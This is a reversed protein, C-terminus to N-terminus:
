ASKLLARAGLEDIALANLLGGKIAALVAATRDSGVVVGVRRAIKKLNALELSIVRDRFPTACEEGTESYFRGLVEGVASATRLIEVDKPGLVGRDVFVSNELTGVGVLVLDAKSLRRMVHQVQELNMLRSCTEADPLIAPTNLRVFTGRWRRALALGFEVADYPGPSADITGMAQVFEIPGSNPPTKLHEVLAQMTRGGAIAVTKASQIWDLIPTAAVHGVMRRLDIPQMGPISRIVIAEIGLERKLKLELERSRPESEAVTIKVLGRERALALMRSVKAQSVNVLKAVQAQPMGEVFYLRAAFILQEDTYGAM